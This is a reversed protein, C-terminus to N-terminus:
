MSHGIYLLLFEHSLHPSEKPFCYVIVFLCFYLESLSLFSEDSLKTISRIINHNLKKTPKSTMKRPKLIMIMAKDYM